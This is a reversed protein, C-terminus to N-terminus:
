MSKLGARLRFLQARHFLDIAFWRSSTIENLSKWVQEAPYASRMADQFQQILEASGGRSKLCQTATYLFARLDDAHRLQAPQRLNHRLDFDFWCAQNSKVDFLVNSISADGHSFFCSRANVGIGAELSLQHMQYLANLALSLMEIARDDNMTESGILEPLARGPLKHMLLGESSEKSGASASAAQIQREWQLWEKYHLVEVPVRRLSLVRNGIAILVPSVFSRKKLVFQEGEIEVLATRNIRVKSICWAVPSFLRAFVILILFKM